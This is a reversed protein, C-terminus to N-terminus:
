ISIYICTHTSPFPPLSPSNLPVTLTHTHTNCESPARTGQLMVFGFLTSGKTLLLATQAACVLLTAGFLGLSQTTAMRSWAGQTQPPPLALPGCCPPPPSSSPQTPFSAATTTSSGSELAEADKGPVVTAGSAAAAPAPAPPPLLPLFGLFSRPWPMISSGDGEVSSSSSSSSPYRLALEGAYVGMLFVPVRSVPHMTAILVALWFDVYVLLLFFLVIIVVAQLYFCRVIWRVLQGDRMRQVRPLISPFALWFFVLMSVFWGPGNINPRSTVSCVPIISQVLLANFTTTDWPQSAFGLPWTPAALALSLLYAPAVRAFRNRWFGCAPFAKANENGHPQPHPHPEEGSDSSGSTPTSGAATTAEQPTARRHCCPFAPPARWRTRGYTVTISFGALMMFLPMLSSAQMDLSYKTAGLAHHVAIWIAAAGRLGVHSQMDVVPPSRTAAAAATTKTPAKMPTISRSSM